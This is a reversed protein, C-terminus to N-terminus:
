KSKLIMQKKGYDIVADYVSLVDGGLVGDIEKIGIQKYSINVHSLDLLVWVVNELKGGGVEVKRLEVIHSEMDNTGLGTSLAEHKEFNNEKVFRHIRNKDLVTRSAGTDVIMRAIRNNIKVKALLHMGDNEIVLTKLPVTITKKRKM